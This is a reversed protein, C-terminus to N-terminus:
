ALCNAVLLTQQNQWHDNLGDDTDPSQLGLLFEVPIIETGQHLLQFFAHQANTGPEGWVVGGSQVSLPKGDRSVSKGNSEMELQQLYAPFRALNQAYPIVARSGYGMFNRHWIGVLGLLLPLNERWPATFFNEDIDRGGALMAEFNERGIAIALPLGIASWLSYRGGVWDWFGFCRAPPIGFEAAKSLATTIASFRQAAAPEGVRQNLWQRATAANTMTELTTFTKSAIIFHCRNPNLSGLLQQLAAPDINSVFHLRKGRGYPHLALTAMAPGLDSGGIGINVIDTLQPDNRLAEAHNLFDNKVALVEAMVSVGGVEWRDSAQARLAPHLVARNETRNIAAGRRFDERLRDFGSAQLLDHLLTLSAETLHTRSYDLVLDDGEAGLLRASFRSKRSPDAAFSDAIRQQEALQGASELQSWRSQQEPKM